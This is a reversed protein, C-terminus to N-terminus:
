HTLPHEESPKSAYQAAPQIFELLDANLKDAM